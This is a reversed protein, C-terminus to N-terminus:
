FLNLHWAYAIFVTSVSINVLWILKLKVSSLGAKEVEFTLNNVEQLDAVYKRETEFMEELLKSLKNDSRTRAKEEQETEVKKVSLWKLM